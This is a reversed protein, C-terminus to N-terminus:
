RPTQRLAPSRIASQPNRIASKRKPFRPIAPPALSVQVFTEQASSNLGTRKFGAFGQRLLVALLDAAAPPMALVIRKRFALRLKLIAPGRARQIERDPIGPNGTSGHSGGARPTPETNQAAVGAHWFGRSPTQCAAPRSRGARVPTPDDWGLFRPWVGRAPGRGFFGAYQWAQRTQRAPGDQWAQRRMRMANLKQASNPAHEPQARACRPAYKGDVMSLIGL